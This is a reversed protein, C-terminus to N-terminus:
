PPVEAITGFGEKLLEQADSKRKAQNREHEIVCNVFPKYGDSLLRWLQETAKPPLERQVRHRDGTTGSTYSEINSESLSRFRRTLQFFFGRASAFRGPIHEYLLRMGAAVSGCQVADADRLVKLLERCAELHYWNQPSGNEFDCVVGDAYDHIIDTLQQLGAKIKRSADREILKEVREVYPALEQKSITKQQPDGHRRNRQRHKECM